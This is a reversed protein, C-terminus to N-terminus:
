DLEDLPNRIAALRPKSVHTYLETTRSSRHGLLEQIYRLDTGAELLHTAFSHRLLNPTVRKEIGARRGAQTIVNQVSRASYHRAPHKGPFLWRDVPFADRYIRVVEVARQALLTYRDKGGKGRRVRVLGRDTDLDGPRLRVVESVRLGASYILMAIAKHKPHRVEGLLRAVEDKSLVGPLRHQSRPRPIRAALAPRDLVADYFFRLASVAQNHYSRSVPRNRRNLLELLYDEPGKRTPQVSPDTRAWEFFRRLHGLYVRQTRPSYGRLQLELRTRELTDQLNAPDPAPPEARPTVAEVHVIREGFTSRLVIWTPEDDPALWLKRRPDWRRVPLRKLALVDRASYGPGLRIRLHGSRTRAVFVPKPSRPSM